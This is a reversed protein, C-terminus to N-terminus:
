EYASEGSSEEPSEPFLGSDDLQRLFDVSEAYRYMEVQEIVPLDLILQRNPQDVRRAVLFYGLLAAAAVSGIRLWFGFRQNPQRQPENQVAIMEVTTAAFRKNPLAKPLDDLLEWTQQLQTIHARLTEDTEIRKAITTATKDDVEGDLYAVLMEHNIDGSHSAGFDPPPPPPKTM